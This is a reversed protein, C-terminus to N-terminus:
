TQRTQMGHDCFKASGYASDDSVPSHQDERHNAGQECHVPRLTAIPNKSGRECQCYDSNACIGQYDGDITTTHRRLRVLDGRRV